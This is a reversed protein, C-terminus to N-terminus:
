SDKKLSAKLRDLDSQVGASSDGKLTDNIEDDLSKGADAIEAYSEALAEEKNVKDKMRELMDITSSSDINALHKNINKQASSVKIRAKLTKLENEWSSINSKLQQVNGEMKSVADEYKTVGAQAVSVQSAHHEKKKLAETALREAEGANIQGAEAKKLLQLAKNEYESAKNKETKLENKSRIVLAKVEALGELSKQLEEKMERIGQETMKIPDELKDIASHAEASGLSFLRKFINAM